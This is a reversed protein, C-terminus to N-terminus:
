PLRILRATGIIRNEVTAKAFYIGPSVPSGSLNRGDWSWASQLTKHRAVLRGQLDHIFVDVVRDTSGLQLKTAGRFPNPAFSLVPVAVEFTPTSTTSSGVAGSANILGAGLEGQFSQNAPLQDVSLASGEIRLVVAEPSLSPNRSILLAAVGTVFPTAFSCGSGIAWGNGPFSSRIGVGPACVEIESGYDSFSAKADNVDLAAVMIAKSHRGPFYPDDGSNENGGSSVVVIGEAEAYSIQNGIISVSNPTGFSLNIIDAGYLRAYALAKAIQFADGRGEDDLVRLPLITSNPATLAIIGSVMTGHGLGEDILGDGDDDMGNSADTPDPDDDIFDYGQFSRGSLLTHNPDIGSDLVAVIVSSGTSVQHAEGLGIRDLATQDEAEDLTGGTASIVMQRVGEPTEEAFNEEAEEVGVMLELTESFETEGLSSPISILYLHAAPFADLTTTGWVQHIAEISYGPTLEVIVEDAVYDTAFALQPAQALGLAILACFTSIRM